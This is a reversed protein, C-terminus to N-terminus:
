FSSILHTSATVINNFPRYISSKANKREEWSHAPSSGEVKLDYAM